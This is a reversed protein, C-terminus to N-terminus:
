TGAVHSDIMDKIQQEINEDQGPHPNRTIGPLDVITFDPLNPSFVRLFLTSCCCISPLANSNLPNTLCPM